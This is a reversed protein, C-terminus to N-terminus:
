DMILRDMSPQHTHNWRVLTRRMSSLSESLYDLLQDLEQQKAKIEKAEAPTLQKPQTTLTCHPHTM